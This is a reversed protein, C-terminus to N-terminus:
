ALLRVTGNLEELARVADEREYFHIFGYDRVKKVKELKGYEEFKEKLQEETIDAKLNRVYLVKVQFRELCSFGRALDLM